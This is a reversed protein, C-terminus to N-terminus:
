IVDEEATKHSTENVTQVRAAGARARALEKEYLWSGANICSDLLYIAVLYWIYAQQVNRQCGAGYELCAAMRVAACGSHELSANEGQVLSLAMQVDKAIDLDQLMCGSARCFAGRYLNWALVSDAECGKGQARLDGLQWKAEANGRAAARSLMRVAKEQVCVSSHKAHASLTDRWYEGQCLDFRYLVGLRACAEVNGRVVAHLYLIEAAQFCACAADEDWRAIGESFLREALELARRGGRDMGNPYRQLLRRKGTAKGQGTCDPESIWICPLSENFLTGRRDIEYIPIDSDNRERIWAAISAPRSGDSFGNARLFSPAGFMWRVLRPAFGVSTARNMAKMSLPFAARITTM